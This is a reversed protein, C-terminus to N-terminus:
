WLPFHERTVFNVDIHGDAHQLGQNVQRFKALIGPVDDRHLYHSALTRWSGKLRGYEDESAVVFLRITLRGMLEPHKQM